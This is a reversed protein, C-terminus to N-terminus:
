AGELVPDAVTVIVVVQEDIEPIHVKCVKGPEAGDFRLSYGNLTCPRVEIRSPTFPEGVNIAKYFAEKIAWLMSVLRLDGVNRVWRREWPTLWMNVFGEIQMQMLSVDTGISVRPVESLAVLVSQDSHSISLSWDQLQGRLMIRPRIARGLGNRSLIQIEAPHIVGVGALQTALKDLLLQKALIRGFLWGERRCADQLEVYVEREADSLWAEGNEGYGSCRLIDRATHQYVFQMGM